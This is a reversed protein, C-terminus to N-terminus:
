DDDDDGPEDPILSAAIAAALTFGIVAGVFLGFLFICM